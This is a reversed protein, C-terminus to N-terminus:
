CGRALAWKRDHVTTSSGIDHKLYEGSHDGHMKILQPTGIHGIHLCGCEM